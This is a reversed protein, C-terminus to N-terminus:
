LTDGKINKRSTTPEAVAEKLLEREIMRNRDEPALCCSTGSAFANVHDQIWCFLTQRTDPQVWELLNPLISSKEEKDFNFEM